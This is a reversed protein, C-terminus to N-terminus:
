FEPDLAVGPLLANEHRDNVAAAVDPNRAWLIPRSGARRAAVALATGWAGAGIIALRVSRCESGDGGEGEGGATAAGRRRAAM